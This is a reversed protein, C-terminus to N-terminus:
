ISIRNGGARRAGLMKAHSRKVLSPGDAMPIPYLAIGLSVRITIAEGGTIHRLDIGKFVRSIAKAREIAADHGTDVLIVAFEDGHYRIAIDNEGIESQLFISLLRLVNDGAQHGFKDNIEKFNDPKIMVMAASQGLDPIMNIYDNSLFNKNYLGTLKDSLLQKHLEWISHNKEYLKKKVDWIRESIIRMLRFLLRVSIDARNHFIDALSGHSPFKLLNSDEEVFATASRTEGALFDLRGFTEGEIIQAININDSVELSIIGIRGKEVVYLCDAEGNMVFVYDGKSFTVFESYKAILDIEYERLDSFFDVYRLLQVKKEHSALDTNM